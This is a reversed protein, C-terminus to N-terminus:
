QAQMESWSAKRNTYRWLFIINLFFICVFV